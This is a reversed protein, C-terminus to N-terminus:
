ILVSFETDDLEQIGAVKFPLYEDQNFLAKM